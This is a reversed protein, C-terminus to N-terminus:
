MKYKETLAKMAAASERERRAPTRLPATAPTVGAQPLAALFREIAARSTIWPKGRRVAELRVRGGRGDPLGRLLWRLVTSPAVGFQRAIEILTIQDGAVIESAVSNCPTVTM